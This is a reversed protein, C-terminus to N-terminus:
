ISTPHTNSFFTLMSKISNPHWGWFFPCTNTIQLYKSSLKSVKLLERFDNNEHTPFSVASSAILNAFTALFISKLESSPGSMRLQKIVVSLAIHSLMSEHPLARSCFRCRKYPAIFNAHLQSICSLIFRRYRLISARRPVQEAHALLKASALAWAARKHELM